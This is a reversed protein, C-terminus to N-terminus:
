QRTMQIFENEDLVRIGLELAKTLKSGAQEGAVVMSTKKSVSGAAKGGLSEILSEAEKRSMSSLTGTVVVTMGTFVGEAKTQAAMHPDVGHAKLRQLLRQNLPNAFYDLVSQAVIQGVDDLAVLEDPTAAALSDISGFRRALDRATKVGINPIGLANILAELPRAKSKELAALLNAARKEGFGELRELQGTQLDYM